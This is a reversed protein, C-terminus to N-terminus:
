PKLYHERYYMSVTSTFRRISSCPPSHDAERGPWGVRPSLSEPIQRSATALLFFGTVTGAPFQVM